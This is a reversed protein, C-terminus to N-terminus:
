GPVFTTRRASVASLMGCRLKAENVAPAVGASLAAGGFRPVGGQRVRQDLLELGRVDDHNGRRHVVERDRGRQLGPDIVDRAGAPGEAVASRSRLAQQLAPLDEDDGAPATDVGAVTRRLAHVELLWIEPRHQSEEAEVVHAEDMDLAQLDTRVGQKRCRAARAAMASRMGSARRRSVRRLATRLRPWDVPRGGCAAALAVSRDRAQHARRIEAPDQLGEDEEIKEVIVAADKLSMPPSCGWEPM